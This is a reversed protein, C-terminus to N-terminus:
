GEESNYRELIVGFDSAIDPVAVNFMIGNLVSFFIIFSMPLIISEPVEHPPQHNPHAM